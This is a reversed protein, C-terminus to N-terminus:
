TMTVSRDDRLLRSKKENMGGEGHSMLEHIPASMTPVKVASWPSPLRQRHPKPMSVMMVGPIDDDLRESKGSTAVFVSGTCDSGDKEDGQEDDGASLGSSRAGESAVLGWELLEAGLLKGDSQEPLEVDDTGDEEDRRNGEEEHGKGKGASLLGQPALRVDDRRDDNTSACEGDPDQPLSLALVGKHGEVHTRWRMGDYRNSASPSYSSLSRPTQAPRQTARVRLMPLDETETRTQRTMFHM